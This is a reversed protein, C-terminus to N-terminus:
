VLKRHSRHAMWVDYPRLNVLASRGRLKRLVERRLTQEVVSNADHGEADRRALEVGVDAAQVQARESLFDGFAVAARVRFESKADHNLAALREKL